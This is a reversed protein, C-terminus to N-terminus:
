RHGKVVLRGRGSEGLGGGSALEGGLASAQDRRHVLAEVLRLAQGPQQREAGAALLYTGVVVRPLNLFVQRAVGRKRRPRAGRAGGGAQDAQWVALVVLVEGWLLHHTQPRRPAGLALRLSSPSPVPAGPMAIPKGPEAGLAALIARCAAAGHAKQDATADPAVAARIAEIQEQM